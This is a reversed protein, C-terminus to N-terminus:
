YTELFHFCSLTIYCLQTHTKTYTCTYTMMPDCMVESMLRGCVKYLHEVCSVLTVTRELSLTATNKLNRQKFIIFLFYSYFLTLASYTNICLSTCMYKYMVPEMKMNNNCKNVTVNYKLNHSFKYILKSKCKFRSYCLPTTVKEGSHLYYLLSKRPRLGWKIKKKM